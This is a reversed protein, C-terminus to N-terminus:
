EPRKLASRHTTNPAEGFAERYMKAFHGTSSFGVAHATEAITGYQHVLILDRARNLREQRIFAVPSMGAMQKMKRGLTKESMGVSASLERVGFGSDHMNAHIQDRVWTLFRDDSPTLPNQHAASAHNITEILRTELTEIRSVSKEQALEHASKLKEAEDRLLTIETAVASRQSQISKIRVSIALGMCVAEGLIAAYFAIEGIQETLLKGEADMGQFDLSVVYTLHGLILFSILTAASAAVPVAEAIGDRIRVVAIAFIFLQLLMIMLTLPVDFIWPDLVAFVTSIALLGLGLARYKAFDPRDADLNLISWCFNVYGLACLAYLVEVVRVMLTFDLSSDTMQHFWGDYLIVSVLMAAVYLSYYQHNTIDAQRFLILSVVLTSSLFGLFLASILMSFDTQIRAAKTDMLYPTVTVDWTESIRLYYTRTEGERLTLSLQPRISSTDREHRPTSRGTVSLRTSVPSDSFLTASGIIYESFGLRWQRLELSSNSVTFKLWLAEGPAPAPYRNECPRPRFREEAIDAPSNTESGTIAYDTAVFYLDGQGGIDLVSPLVGNPCDGPDQALADAQWMIALLLALIAIPLGQLRLPSTNTM